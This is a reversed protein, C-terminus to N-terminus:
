DLYFLLYILKAAEARNANDKPAFRGDPRGEFFGYRAGMAVSDKAYDAIQEDDAFSALFTAANAPVSKNAVNTLVNSLMKAMEERTINDNPSFIGGPRGQVIGLKAATAVEEYFWDGSKVDTFNSVATSDGLNFTRVILSAFEARTVNKAPAYMDNGVGRIINKAAMSEIFDVAWFNSAVDIFGVANVMITYLSFHNTEFTVMSTEENYKGMVNVPENNENIYFVTIRDPDESDKLTYPVSVKIFGNFETVPDGDVTISLDFVPADGVLTQQDATLTGTNVKDANLEIVSDNGIEPLADLPISFAAVDTIMNVSKIGSEAAANMLGGPVQVTTATSDPNVRADLTLVPDVVIAIGAESLVTNLQNATEVILDLMAKTNADVAEGEAKEGLVVKAVDRGEVVDETEPVVNLNGITTIAAQVLDNVDAILGDYNELDNTLLLKAALTTTKKILDTTLNNVVQPDSILPILEAAEKIKEEIDATLEPLTAESADAIEDELISDIIDEVIGIITSDTEDEGPEEEVPEEGPEDVPEVPTVPPVAAAETTFSFSVQAAERMVESVVAGPVVTLTYTTSNSMGGPVVTLVAGNISKTTAVVVGGTTLTVESIKNNAGSFIDKNYTVTISAGTSVGTAGAAPSSSVFIPETADAEYMNYLNLVYIVNENTVDTSAVNDNVKGALVDVKDNMDALLILILDQLSDNGLNAALIRSFAEGLDGNRVFLGNELTLIPVSNNPDTMALVVEGKTATDPLGLATKLTASDMYTAYNDYISKVVVKQQLLQDILIRVAAESIENVGDGILHQMNVATLSAIFDDYIDNETITDINAVGDVGYDWLEKLIIAKNETSMAHLQDVAYKVDAKDAYVGPAILQSMVMVLAILVAIVKKRM